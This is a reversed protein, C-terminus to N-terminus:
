HSMKRKIRQQKRKETCPPCVGLVSYMYEVPNMIVGCTPCVKTGHGSAINQAVKFAQLELTEAGDGDFM